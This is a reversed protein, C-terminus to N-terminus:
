AQCLTISAIHQVGIVRWAFWFCCRDEFEEVVSVYVFQCAIHLHAAIRGISNDSAYALRKTPYVKNARPTYFQSVLAFAIDAFTVDVQGGTGRQPLKRNGISASLDRSDMRYVFKFYTP